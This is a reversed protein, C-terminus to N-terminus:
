TNLYFPQHHAAKELLLEPPTFREGYRDTLKNLIDVTVQAGRRDTELIPGGLFPPFGTGMLMSMDLHEPGAVVNESLCLIAERAMTFSCRELITQEDLDQSAYRGLFDQQLSANLTKEKGKWQYFGLQKKKGLLKLDQFVYELVSSVKMREGYAQELTKAVHYGVDIGVEDTLHFPGMPMGYHTMIRDVQEIKAGDELCRAAENMYALLIRNVLFGACNKVVVPSKGLKQALKFVTAVTEPSTKEGPIIEILPMRNVPNFFHLGVFREPHKLVSGMETISLASTNSCLIATESVHSELEQLVSKKIDMNEVVAEVVVSSKSFGKYDCSGTIRTLGNSIDHDKVKRIKKLSTYIDYASQYGKAIAEPQLDKMRVPHGKHAFLWSIGGGMIGAGLVGVQEETNITQPKAEIPCKKLAENNFFVQILNPAVQGTILDAFYEREKTLGEHLNVGCTDRLLELIKNLAPYNKGGKKAVNKTAFHFLIQQGVINDELLFNSLSKRKKPFPRGKIIRQVEKKVTLDTFESAFIVQALGSRKAKKGDIMKGTLIMDLASQLGILKPLRQTGGWGPLIGLKVEPLGLKTKAHDSVWRENCALALEMGGGLCAGEIVAITPFPLKEIKNFVDQGKKLKQQATDRDRITRIDQIDAGAIFIGEKASRFLLCSCPKTYLEDLHGELELMTEPTFKNVKEGPYDFMLEAVGDEHRTLTWASLQSM